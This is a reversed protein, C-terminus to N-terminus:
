TSWLRVPFTPVIVHMYMERTFIKAQDGDCNKISIYLQGFLAVNNFCMGSLKIKVWLTKFLVLFFNSM